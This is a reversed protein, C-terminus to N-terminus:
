KVIFGRILEFVNNRCAGEMCADIECPSHPDITPLSYVSDLKGHQCLFACLCPHMSLPELLKVLDWVMTRLQM